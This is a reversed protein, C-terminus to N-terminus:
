TSASAVKSPEPCGLALRRTLWQKELWDRRVRYLQTPIPPMRAREVEYELILGNLADDIPLPLAIFSRALREMAAASANSRVTRHLARLGFFALAISYFGHILLAREGPQLPEVMLIYTVTVVAVMLLSGLIGAVWAQTRQLRWNYFASHAYIERLRQPGPPCNPQYYEELTRAPLRAARSEFLRSSRSEVESLAAPDVERDFAYAHLALRRCQHALADLPAALIRLVMGLLAFLVVLLPEWDRELAPDSVLGDIAVFAAALDMLLALGHFIKVYEGAGRFLRHVKEASELM